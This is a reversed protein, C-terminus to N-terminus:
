FNGLIDNENFTRQNVAHTQDKIWAQVNEMKIKEAMQKAVPDRQLLRDNDEEDDTFDLDGSVRSLEIGKAAFPSGGSEELFNQGKLRKIDEDSLNHKAKM